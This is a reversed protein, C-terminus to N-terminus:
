NNYTWNQCNKPYGIFGNIGGDELKLQVIRCIHKKTLQKIASHRGRSGQLARQRQTRHLGQTAVMDANSRGRSRHLTNRSAHRYAASLREITNTLNRWHASGDLLRCGIPMRVTSTRGGASDRQTGVSPRRGAM